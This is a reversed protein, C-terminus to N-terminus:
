LRDVEPHLRAEDGGLLRRVLQDGAGGAAALQRRLGLRVGGLLALVGFRGRGGLEAASATRFKRRTCRRASGTAAKTPRRSAPGGCTAPSRRGHPWTANASRSSCPTVAPEIPM